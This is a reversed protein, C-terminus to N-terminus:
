SAVLEGIKDILSRLTFPKQLFHVGPNLIGHRVVVDATYGSVLLVKIDPRLEVLRDRLETGTMEPMVVDSLVLDIKLEPDQCKRIADQADEAIVPTYGNSQLARATMRRLVEDDEVVLITKGAASKGEATSKLHLPAAAAAAGQLRPFHVKFVTGREADSAVSIFGLNQRVIGYVNALGLGTGKAEKTTFFPEFIRAVTAADMGTGTDSVALMVYDGPQALANERAGAADITVNGTQITLKGGDPMADRANATLNLLVQDLQTPDLMVEWLDAAPVIRVEIDEGVMRKLPTYFDAIRRNLNLPQPAIVQQRSFGMLQSVLKSSRTASGHIAAVAGRDEESLNPSEALLECYVIVVALANNFDHAIGGTLRGLAEMKQAQMLQQELEARKREAEKRERLDRVVTAIAMTEGRENHIAIVQSEIPIDEGTKFHRLTSELQSWGRRMTEPLVERRFHELVDPSMFEPITLRSDPSWEDLGVLAKAARNLYTVVGEPTAIGIFYPSTEILSALVAQQELAKKRETVDMHSVILRLPRGEADREILRGRSLIWRWGGDKTRMRLERAHEERTGLTYEHMMAQMNPLDDPHCLPVIADFGLVPDGAPYGLMTYYQQNVRATRAQLDLDVLGDNTASLAVTLRQLERVSEELQRNRHELKHLLVKSHRELLTQEDLARRTSTGGAAGSLEICRRIHGLLIKPALPKILFADAGLDRALREHAPDTFTATYVLFPIAQLVPDSRWRRLLMFGDLVPMMLDSIVVDPPHRHAKILAEEGDNAADVVFGSSQLLAQLLYRNEANDDAILARM